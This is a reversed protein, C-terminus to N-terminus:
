LKFQHIIQYKNLYLFYYVILIGLLILFIGKILYLKKEKELQNKKYIEDNFM